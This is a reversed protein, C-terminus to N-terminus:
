EASLWVCVCVCVCVQLLTFRMVARLPMLAVMVAAHRKQVVSLLRDEDVDRLDLAVGAETPSEAAYRPIPPIIVPKYIGPQSM